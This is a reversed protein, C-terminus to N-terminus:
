INLGCFSSLWVQVRVCYCRGYEHARPSRGGRGGRGRGRGRRAGRYGGRGGREVPSTPRMDERWNKSDSGPVLSM